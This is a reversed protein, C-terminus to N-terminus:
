QTLPLTTPYTQLNYRNDKKGTQTAWFDYYNFWQLPYKHITKEAEKIFDCLALQILEEKQGRKEAQYIKPETASFHYHWNGEKMAFVYCVPVKFGVALAFPGQPFLAEAGLFPATVTKAWPMFRDGHMCILEGRQLALSIQYVHSIDDKILIVDMTNKGKAKDLFQKIKEHEAEHLVVNIKTKIRYLLHGAVEWNGIHASVLMGGTGSEAMRILHEEGEFDFSFRHGLGSMVAIRDLLTQGFIYYNSYKAWVAKWSAWAMRKMFYSDLAKSSKHSFLFYYFAVFRLIFYAPAIGAYKLTLVFIQYGLLNARSKGDWTAM